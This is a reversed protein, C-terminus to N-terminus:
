PNELSTYSLDITANFANVVGVVDASRITPLYDWAWPIAPAQATVMRDIRGWAQARKDPDTILRAKDIAQNIAPVDLQPWNANNTPAINEGNFTVDLISQGDNFDKIWGVNPCIAVDAKPVGCFRTFMTDLSVTRFDVKFGLSTFLDLAVQATRRGNGSDSAVMLMNKGGEYKGSEYGAKRMYEAALQPDGTPDALFDLNPGEYGGAEEFGPIGPPIFHNAIPSRIAGGITLRLAYRDAAALVAKRVNLDDFPAITTNMAVYYNAGTPTLMLQDPRQTAAKKLVPPDPSFDGNVQGEGGLIKQSASNTDTFGERFEISDLYAPRFDTVAAWNPNRVLTIEKGPSYGTLKGSSDNEIMYPGTGVVYQGYTSPSEEDFPAAYEEPVPAGVSLSLAQIVTASTSQNLKLVLTAPDPALVGKIEPATTPDSEVAKQAAGFGVLDGFYAPVYPNGVGPMLTREIAYKFDAARIERDVPPSYRVGPKIRFTITKGDDSVTPDGTVLDPQPQFTEDPPWTMLTRQTAFNVMYTFQYYSAGPDLYDVDGSSIVTLKGGRKADSPAKTVPAFDARSLGSGDGGNGCASIGLALVLALVGALSGRGRREAM